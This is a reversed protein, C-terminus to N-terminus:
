VARCLGVHCAPATATMTGCLTLRSDLNFPTEEGVPYVTEIRFRDRLLEEIGDRTFRHYDHPFAHFDRNLPLGFVFTGGPRLVRHIEALAAQVNPVHELAWVSFVVDCNQDPVLGRLNQIDGLIDPRLRRDCDIRRYSTGAPFYERYLGGEKDADTGSGISLIHGALPACLQRLLTNSERRMPDIPKGSKHALRLALRYCATAEENLGEQNFANGLMTCVLYSSPTLRLAKRFSAIAEEKQGLEKLTAGLFFYGEAYDDRLALANTHCHRAADLRGLNHLSHGMRAWARYHSTEQALVRLLLAIAEEDRELESLVVAYNYLQYPPPQPQRRDAAAMLACAEDLHSRTYAMVGLQHLAEPHCPDHVLVARYASEAEPLRGKQMMTAGYEITDKIATAPFPLM